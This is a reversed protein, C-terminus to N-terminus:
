IESLVQAFSRLSNEKNNKIFKEIKTLPFVTRDQDSLVFHIGISNEYNGISPEFIMATKYDFWHYERKSHKKVVEGLYSGCRLVIRNYTENFWNEKRSKLLYKEIYKLSEISYDFQEPKFKQANPDQPDLYLLISIEHVEDDFIHLIKTM